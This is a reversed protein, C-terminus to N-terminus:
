GQAKDKSSFKLFLLNIIFLLQIVGDVMYIKSIVGSMAYYFDVITFALAILIAMLVNQGNKFLPMISIGAAITLLSVTKVLWVDTKPGTVAMFVQLHMLPWIGTILLYMSQIVLSTNIANTRRLM